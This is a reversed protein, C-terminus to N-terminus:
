GLALGAVGAAIRLGREGEGLLKGGLLAVFLMTVQRAPAVHSLPALKVAAILFVGGTVSLVGLVGVWSMAEGLLLLAGFSDVGWGAWVGVPAWVGVFFLAVLLVFRSDGGAKKAVVNWSAHLLAAVLVLSLASLSM